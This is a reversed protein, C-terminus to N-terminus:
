NSQDAKTSNRNLLVQLLNHTAANQLFHHLLVHISKEFPALIAFNRKVINLSELLQKECDNHLITDPNLIFVYPTKAVKIIKNNGDGYGLNKKSLIIRIKPYKKKIKKKLEIDNSNDLIIIKKIKKISKLCKFIVKESKFTVIGITIENFKM